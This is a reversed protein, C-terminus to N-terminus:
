DIRMVYFLIDQVYLEDYNGDYSNMVGYGDSDIVGEIFREKDIYETIDLGFEDMFWRPDDKVDGVLEEVKEDILEQPFEGAPSSEIESIEDSMDELKENLEDIKEEIEEDNEGDKSEELTEILQETRLIKDKLIEIEEEQEGSLLRESDDFYVEPNNYVDDEYFDEAYRAVEDNDIYSEVFNRSFGDYGVDDILQEVYEEASDQIEKSDGVAYEEGEIDSPIVKFTQLRYHEGVPIMNYVDAKSELEELEYELDSIQDLLGTEVDESEDYQANLSVIENKIEEIRLRDENTLPEIENKDVLYDFLAHARLGEESCDPGLQWENEVRREQAEDLRENRERTIRLQYLREKEKRALEADRYIKLKDGFQDEMYQDISSQLEKLEETGIIWGTKFSKDIADWYSSEGNFKKLIAVKYNADSTPLTKDIVYFLKGDENYSNFHSDTSAATCWKTGKGYYCSADYTLPNVVFFRDDEYVVNGGKVKKVIRRQKANFDNIANLLDNITKYQYLDSHVLNGSNKEFFELASHLKSFNEDFNISDINKGAWELFKPQIMSVIREIQEPTFKNSYKSVFDEKRGEKILKIFDM